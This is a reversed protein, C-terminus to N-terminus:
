GPKFVPRGDGETSVPSADRGTREALARAWANVRDRDWGESADVVTGDEVMVLTPVTAVGYDTSVAYRDSDDDLVPGAFGKDELWGVTTVLPDQTVAVVPM